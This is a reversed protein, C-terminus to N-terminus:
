GPGELLQTMEGAEKRERIMEKHKSGELEKRQIKM